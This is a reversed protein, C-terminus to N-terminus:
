CCQKPSGKGGTRKCCRSTCDKKRRCAKGNEVAVGVGDAIGNATGSIIAEAGDVIANAANGASDVTNGIFDGIANFIRKEHKLSSALAASACLAVVLLVQLKSAMIFRFLSTTAPSVSRHLPCTGM